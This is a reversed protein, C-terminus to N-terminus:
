TKLLDPQRVFLHPRMNCKEAPCVWNGIKEIDMKLIQLKAKRTGLDIEKVATPTVTGEVILSRCMRGEKVMRPKERISEYIVYCARNNEKICNLKRSDDKAGVAFYLCNDRYVHELPVAYPRDGDVLCLVGAKSETIFDIVESDNLTGVGRTPLM